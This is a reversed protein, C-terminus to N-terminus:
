ICALALAIGLLACVFMPGALWYHPKVFGVTAGITCAILIARREAVLRTRIIEVFARLTM